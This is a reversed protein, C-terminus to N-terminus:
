WTFPITNWNFHEDDTLVIDESRTYLAVNRDRLEKVLGYLTGNSFGLNELSQIVIKDGKKIKQLLDYFNPMMNIGVATIWDIFLKEVGLKEQIEKKNLNNREFHPFRVYGYTSVM